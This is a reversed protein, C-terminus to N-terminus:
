VISSEARAELAAHPASTVRFSAFCALPSHALIFAETKNFSFCASATNMSFSHFIVGELFPNIFIFAQFISTKIPDINKLKL